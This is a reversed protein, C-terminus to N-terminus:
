SAPATWIPPLLLLWSGRVSGHKDGERGRWLHKQEEAAVSLVRVSREICRRKFVSGSVYPNFSMQTLYHPGTHPLPATQPLTPSHSATHPLTLYQLTSYHSTAHLLTLYHLDFHKKREKSYIYTKKVWM